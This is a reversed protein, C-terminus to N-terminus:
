GHDKETELPLEFTVWNAKYGDHKFMKAWGRRATSELGECGVDKAFRKLLSIMPKLWAHIDEGGCFQMSLMKKQPYAIVSTVVAAKFVGDDFAVWLQYDGDKVLDYINSTTYRGYTYEAAKDIFREVKSWCTDIYETPVLSVEIM